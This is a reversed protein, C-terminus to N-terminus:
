TTQGHATRTKTIVSIVSVKKPEDGCSAAVTSNTNADVLEQVMGGSYCQGMVIMKAAGDVKSVNDAFDDDTIEERNWLCITANETEGPNNWTSGHDYVYIFLYDDADLAAGLTDFVMTVNELTCAYDVDEVGDGDFDPDSNGYTPPVTKPVRQYDEATDNGDSYLVYIHEEAYHLDTKLYNYYSSINNYYRPYYNCSCICLPLSTGL